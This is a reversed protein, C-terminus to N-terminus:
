PSLRIRRVGADGGQLSRDRVEEVDRRPHVQGPQPPGSAEGDDGRRIRRHGRAFSEGTAPFPPASLFNRVFDTM